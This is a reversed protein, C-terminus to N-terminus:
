DKIKDLNKGVKKIDFRDIKAKMEDVYKNILNNVHKDIQMSADQIKRTQDLIDNLEDKIKSLPKELYTIKLDEFEKKLEESVKFKEREKINDSLTNAFKDCITKLISLFTMMYQPRVMYMKQYNPIKRIPADDSTNWELESVLLAYECNNKQRDKDLKAYFTENKVGKGNIIAQNKMELCVSSLEADHTADAYIRFLFDPKTGKADDEFDKKIENAKEFTCNDYGSIAYTDYQNKCWQELQEGLEKTNFNQKQLILKTNEENLKNLEDKKENLQKNFNENLRMKEIEFEDKLSKEQQKIEIEKKALSTKLDAIQYQYQIEVQLRVKESDSAKEAKLTEIQSKLDNIEKNFNQEQQLLEIKKERELKNSLTERAENLKQQYLHDKKEEILKSINSTDVSQLEKIDVIDGIEAPELIKITNQDIIECKIKKSM